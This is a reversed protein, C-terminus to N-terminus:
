AANRWLPQGKWTADFAWNPLGRQHFRPRSVDKDWKDLMTRRYALILPLSKHLSCNPRETSGDPIGTPNSELVRLLRATSHPNHTRYTHETILYTLHEFAWQYNGAAERVWKACPHNVHTVKYMLPTGSGWSHHATSLLQATELIMKNVRLSDLARACQQPCEDTWFINM